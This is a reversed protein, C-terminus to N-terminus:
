SNAAGVMPANLTRGGLSGSFAADGFTFVGGDSAVEMYGQGGPPSTMSVIPKNLKLGGMSGYFGAGGFAFVGGDSAVEWYGLGGPAMAVGVVPKNLRHGGMSGYFGADGFAFIGGDAAVEWYGLGDPTPSAGVVPANLHQGGMSRYFGADGFAFVGGDAAVEWYGMGDPTSSVGVIAANLHQGGMSGYFGADGFAFIGGDAAVEWYGRGDPTAAMGVIPANLHQGGMSGDFPAGGFAFVGGDAAATWYTGNSLSLGYGAPYLVSTSPPPQTITVPLKGTPAVDGFVVSMVSTLSVPFNDYAAVFTPANQFYAIDYPTGGAVVVVPRGTALLANVLSVQTTLGSSDASWANYTFVIVEQSQQAAAVAQAIQTTSPDFGTALVDPDLGAPVSPASSPWAGTVLVKTGAASPLPLLNASNKVVTISADTIAQATALHAATGVVNNVNGVDVFPNSALGLKWKLSLIRTVSQDIRSIGIQSSNVANLVANYAEVFYQPQGTAPQQAYLLQDEGADIAMIAANGPTYAALAQANMADSIIPGQFGLQNRLLGLFIPSLSSPVGSPDVNPMVIHTVMVQDVGAGIAAEFSPFNTAELQALTQDSTTVGDDPDTSTDGLGPFHKAMAGVGGPGQYGQVAATAFSSVAAPQDGFSRPGDSTNLPNTNVDVVPADDVNVGMARLEQGTISASQYASNPDGTAGLAMNGPFVTAPSGIRTVVGEEQDTYTLDPTPLTQNAAAQQIGNSLQAITTPDTLGNSWDFYIIGGPDYTNILDQITHVGPGYLAQNAAVNASSNDTATTGYANIVFLQGVKQAVTMHSLMCSVWGAEDAVSSQCPSAAAAPSADVLVITLPALLFAALLLASASSRGLRTSASNWFGGGGANLRSPRSLDRM